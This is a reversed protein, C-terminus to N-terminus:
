PKALAMVYRCIAISCACSSAINLDALLMTYVLAWVSSL